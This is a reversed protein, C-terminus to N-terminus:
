SASRIRRFLADPDVSLAELSDGVFALLRTLEDRVWERAELDDVRDRTLTAIHRRAARVHRREDSRIFRLLARMTPQRRLPTSLLGSMVMCVCADLEAIRAFHDAVGGAAGMRMLMRRSRSRVAGLDDPAPLQDRLAGLLLAHDEEERAIRAFLDRSRSLGERGLREREGAFVLVSSEEGCLLTPLLRGLEARAREGPMQVQRLGAVLRRFAPRQTGGEVSLPIPFCAAVRVPGKSGTRPRTMSRSTPLGHDMM